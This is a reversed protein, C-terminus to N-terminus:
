PAGPRTMGHTQFLRKAEEPTVNVMKKGCCTLEGKGAKLVSVITECEKCKHVTSNQM